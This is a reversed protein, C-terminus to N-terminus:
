YLLFPERQQAFSALDTSFSQVITEFADGRAMAQRVQSTGLVKDFYEVHVQMKAGCIRRVTQLIALTTAVPRFADRATVHLQCGGCLEGAFKSFTPTFWAERFKAGPLALANLERTLAYGDIWPAGFLEFPKATGRGESLNTGELIVQGPYVTATDLTPMNPSPMVWPFPTDEFRADRRWGKMPVVSLAVPRALFRANFLQALEGPTMGHRLPVPYLGIFSSHRPYELVPGEMAVGGIPNPRDLVLFPIGAEACAQMAYAM